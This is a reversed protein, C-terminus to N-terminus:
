YGVAKAGYEAQTTTFGEYELQEILGDRSFSSYDLYSQACNAAQENWDAGCNDVAYTAEENSYGEYELQEVLGDHSFASYNLYSEATGLANQQGMTLNSSDDSTDNSTDNSSYDSTTIDEAEEQEEIEEPILTPIPTATPAPTPTSTPVTTATPTTEVSSKTNINNDVSKTEDDSPIIIVLFMFGFFISLAIRVVNHYRKNKWLLFIGIPTIFFLMVWMFWTKDYFKQKDNM